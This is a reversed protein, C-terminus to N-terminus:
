SAYLERICKTKAWFGIIGGKIATNDGNLITQVTRLTPPIELAINEFGVPDAAADKTLSKCDGGFFACQRGM